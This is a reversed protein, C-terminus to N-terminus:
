LGFSPSTYLYGFFAEMRQMISCDQMFDVYDINLSKIRCSPIDNIIKSYFPHFIELVNEKMKGCKAKENINILWKTKEVHNTSTM